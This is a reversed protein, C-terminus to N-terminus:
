ETPILRATFHVSLSSIRGDAIRQCGLDRRVYKLECWEIVAEQELDESSGIAQKENM